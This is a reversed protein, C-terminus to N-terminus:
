KVEKFIKSIDVKKPNLYFYQDMELYMTKEYESLGKIVDLNRETIDLRRMIYGDSLGMNIMSLARKIKHAEVDNKVKGDVVSAIDTPVVIADFDDWFKVNLRHLVVKLDRGYKECFEDLKMRYPAPFPVYRTKQKNM